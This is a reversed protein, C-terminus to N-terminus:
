IILRFWDSSEMLNFFIQSLLSFADRKYFDGDSFSKFIAGRRDSIDWFCFM